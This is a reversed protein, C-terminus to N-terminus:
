RLCTNKAMSVGGNKKRSVTKFEYKKCLDELRKLFVDGSGDDVVTLPSQKFRFRFYSKIATEAAHELGLNLKKEPVFTVMCSFIHESAINVTNNTICLCM